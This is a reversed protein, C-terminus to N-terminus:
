CKLGKEEAIAELVMIADKATRAPARNIPLLLVKVCARRTSMRGGPTRWGGIAVVIRSSKVQPPDLEHFEVRDEGFHDMIVDKFKSLKTM